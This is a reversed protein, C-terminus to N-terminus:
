IIFHMLISRFVKKKNNRGVCKLNQLSFLYPYFYERSPYRGDFLQLLAGGMQVVGKLQQQKSTM